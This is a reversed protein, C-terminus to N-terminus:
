ASEAELIRRGIWEAKQPLIANGCGGLREVRAPIGDDTGCFPPECLSTRRLWAILSDRSDLATSPWLPGPTQSFQPRDCVLIKRRPASSYAVIVIRERVHPALFDSAYFSSWEADYGCEALNGLVRGMGRELLAAVNEVIIYRPRLQCIIRYYQAWLGSRAGDIGAKLGSCSIDQCPFGGCLVDVPELGPGAGRVDGCRKVSPWHKKLVKQAYEDIEIQWKCVMGARELGLDFGGFGSFLSGFTM